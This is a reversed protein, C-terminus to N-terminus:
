CFWTLLEAGGATGSLVVPHNVDADRCSDFGDNLVMHHRLEAHLPQSMVKGDLM